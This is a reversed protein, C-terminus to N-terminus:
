FEYFMFSKYILNMCAHTYYLTRHTIINMNEEGGKQREGEVKIGQRQRDSQKERRGQFDKPHFGKHECHCHANHNYYLLM